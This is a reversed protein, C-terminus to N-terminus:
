ESQIIDLTWISEVIRSFYLLLGDDKMVTNRLFDIVQPTQKRSCALSFALAAAEVAGYRDIFKLTSAKDNSCVVQALHDIPHQKTYHTIGSESLTSFQRPLSEPSELTEKLYHNKLSASSSSEIVSWIKKEVHQNYADEV